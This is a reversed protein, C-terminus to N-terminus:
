DSEKCPEVAYLSYNGHKELSLMVATKGTPLPVWIVYRELAQQFDLDALVPLPLLTGFLFCRATEM